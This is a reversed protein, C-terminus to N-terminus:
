RVFIYTTGNTIKSTVNGSKFFGGSYNYIDAYNLMSYDSGKGDCGEIEDWFLRFVSYGTMGHNLGLTDQLPICRATKLKDMDAISYYGADRMTMMMEQSNNKFHFWQPDTLHFNDVFSTINQTETYHSAYNNASSYEKGPVYRIAMLTWGGGQNEMDCFTTFEALGGVGDPDLTYFGSLASPDNELVAKCSSNGINPQVQKNARITATDNGHLTIDQAFLHGDIDLMNIVEHIHTLEADKSQEEQLFLEHNEFKITQENVKAQNLNYTQGSDLQGTKSPAYVALYAVKQSVRTNGTTQLEQYQIKANFGIQNVNNARAVYAFGSNDSQPSLFLYPVQDYQQSFEFTQSATSMDLVGVEWISGDAMTHIGAGLTLTSITENTHTGDLYEWEKYSLSFSGDPNKKLSVAGPDAHLNSAVGTVVVENSTAPVLVGNHSVTNEVLVAANASSAAFVAASLLALKFM